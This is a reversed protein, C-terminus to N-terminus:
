QSKAALKMEAAEARAKWEDRESEIETMRDLAAGLEKRMAELATGDAKEAPTPILHADKKDFVDHLEHNFDSVNVLMFGSKTPAKVRVTAVQRSQTKDTM